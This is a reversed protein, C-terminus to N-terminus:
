RQQAIRSDAQEDQTDKSSEAQKQFMSQLLEGSIGGHNLVKEVGDMHGCMGAQRIRKKRIADTGDEDDQPTAVRGAATRMRM